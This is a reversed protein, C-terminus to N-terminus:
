YTNWVKRPNAHLILKFKDIDTMCISYLENFQLM